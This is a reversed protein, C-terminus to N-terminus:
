ASSPQALLLLRAPREHGGGRMLQARRHRGQLDHEVQQDRVEVRVRDREAVRALLGAPGVLLRCPERLEGAIQEVDAADVGPQRQTGLRHHEALHQPGDDRLQLHPEGLLAARHFDGVLSSRQAM